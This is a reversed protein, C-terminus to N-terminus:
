IFRMRKSKSKQSTITPLSQSSLNEYILQDFNARDSGNIVAQEHAEQLAVPYGNGKISQSIICSHALNIGEVNTWEPIELRVIESGINVYFFCIQHEGYHDSVVKSTSKFVSSRDHLALVKEFLDVDKLSSVSECNRNNKPLSGCNTNCNVDDWRCLTSSIRLSNIVETSGPSSIHSAVVLPRHTSVNKLRTLAASFRNEIFESRVYEPFAELGWLILSGDLLAILPLGEPCAEVADVLAEIEMISRTLGLLSGKIPIEGVGTPNAVTLAARDAYFSPKNQLVAKPNQGYTIVSSGINILYCQLSSHRDVDIHSGDVAIVTHDQPLERPTTSESLSQSLQPILWSTQSKLRREEIDQVQESVFANIASEIAYYNESQQRQLIPKSLLLQLAAKTLDLAM